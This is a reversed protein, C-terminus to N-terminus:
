RSGGHLEVRVAALRELAPVISGEDGSPVYAVVRDIGAEAYRALRAVDPAVGSVSVAVHRGARDRLERVRALFADDDPEQGPLWGDGYALVRDLVRPGNGGVLLPPAPAQLPKPWCRIRDFDVHRGHYSAEDERWIARVAEAHERLVSFRRAPEVGHGAVEELNWGAGVGLILRGGSLRDVCAAQKATVIPDRQALLCVGTGLAIRSTAAAAATLAVFPDYTREYEPPLPGGLPFPTARDAPIHTHETVFLSEFGADEVWRAVLEPAPTLDTLFVAVGFHM